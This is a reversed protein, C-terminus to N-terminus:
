KRGFAVRYFHFKPCGIRKISSWYDRPRLMQVSQRIIKENPREPIYYLAFHVQVAIAKKDAQIMQVLKEHDHRYAKDNRRHYMKLELYAPAHQTHVAPDVHLDIRDAVLGPYEMFVAMDDEFEHQLRGYLEAVVMAEFTVYKVKTSYLDQRHQSYRQGTQQFHTLRNHYLHALAADIRALTNSQAPTM